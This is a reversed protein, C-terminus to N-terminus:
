RSGGAMIVIVGGGGGVEVGDIKTGARPSGNINQTRAEGRVGDVMRHYRRREGYDSFATLGGGVVVANDNDEFIIDDADGAILRVSSLSAGVIVFFASELHRRGVWARKGPVKKVARAQACRAHIGDVLFVVVAGVPRRRWREGRVVDGLVHGRIGQGIGSPPLRQVWICQRM